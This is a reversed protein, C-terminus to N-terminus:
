KLFARRHAVRYGVGEWGGGFEGSRGGGKTLGGRGM